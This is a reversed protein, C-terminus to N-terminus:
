PREVERGAFFEEATRAGPVERCLYSSGRSFAGVAELLLLPEATPIGRDRLRLATTWERRAGSRRLLRPVLSRAGVTRHVKLYARERALRYVARLANEKVLIAGEIRAPERLLGEGLARAIRAGEATAAFSLGGLRGRELWDAGEAPARVAERAAAASKPM